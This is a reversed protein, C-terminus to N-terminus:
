NRRLCGLRLKLYRRKQAGGFAPDGGSALAWIPPSARGERRLAIVCRSSPLPEMRRRAAPTVPRRSRDVKYLLAVVAYPLQFRLIVLTTIVRDTFVLEHDPGAGPARLRDHGRRERAPEGAAGVLGRGAARDAQGVPSAASRYLDPAVVGWSGVEIVYVRIM